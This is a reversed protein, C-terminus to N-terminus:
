VRCDLAGRGYVFGDKIEGKWPDLDWGEPSAPVVDLHSLLLLSQGNEGPLRVLLNGRGGASELIEPEFDEQSLFNYLYQAAKTENGPPNATNIRILDRLLKTAKNM